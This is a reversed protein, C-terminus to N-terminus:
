KQQNLEHLKLYKVTHYWANLYSWTFGAAGNLINGYFLYHKIFYAPFGAICLLLPRSKGKEKLKRAGISTYHNFKRFYHELDKYSYHLIVHHLKQQKGSIEVREHVTAANFNGARKNFLRLHYFKSEKGYRFIRNMFVHRVPVQYGTIVPRSLDLLQIEQVLDDSMVEDADINLVWDFKTKSVAFQKQAGFGDLTRTFVRCGFSEAVAITQDTSNDDIVIIDECWSLKPLSKRLNEEENKTIIVVSIQV